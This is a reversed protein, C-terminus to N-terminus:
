RRGSATARGVGLTTYVDVIDGDGTEWRYRDRNARLPQECDARRDDDARLTATKAVIDTASDPDAVLGSGDRAVHSGLNGVDTVVEALYSYLM